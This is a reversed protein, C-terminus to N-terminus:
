RLPALHAFTLMSVLLLCLTASISGVSSGSLVTPLMGCDFLAKM